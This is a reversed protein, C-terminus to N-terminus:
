KILNFRGRLDEGSHNSKNVKKNAEQISNAQIVVPYWKGGKKVEKGLFKKDHLETKLVRTERSAQNVKIKQIKQMIENIKKEKTKPKLIAWFYPQFTDIICVKKNDKTKGIVKVYNKSNYDFYDYDIPIFQIQM